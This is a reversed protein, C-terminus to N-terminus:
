GTRPTALRSMADCKDLRIQAARAHGEMGEIRSIHATVRALDPLAAGSVQQWTVCKLFKHV